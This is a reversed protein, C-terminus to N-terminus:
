HLGVDFDLEAALPRLGGLYDLAELGASPTRDDPLVVEHALAARAFAHAFREPPHQVLQLFGEAAGARTEFDIRRM